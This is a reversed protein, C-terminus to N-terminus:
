CRPRICDNRRIMVPYDALPICNSLADEAMICIIRNPLAEIQDNGNFFATIMPTVVPTNHSAAHKVVAGIMYKIDLSQPSIARTHHKINRENRDVIRCSAKYADRSDHAFCSCRQEHVAINQASVVHDSYAHCSVSM